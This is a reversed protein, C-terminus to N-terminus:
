SQVKIKRGVILERLKKLDSQQGILILSDGEEMVVEPLPSIISTGDKRNLSLITIDTGELPLVKLKRGVLNPSSIKFDEIALNQQKANVIANLFDVVGPRLAMAAMHYGGIKYPTAVRDAGARYLKPIAEEYSARAIILLNPNLSRATLTIFVNDADDDVVTLLGRAQDIGCKKLVAESDADGHLYLWGKNEAYKLREYNRDTIIFPVGEAEFEEAIQRGVRGCGCIIFHNKLSQMRKRMHRRKLSGKLEGEIIYESFWRFAYVIVGIGLIVLIITLFKGASSLEVRGHGVTALTVIVMYLADLFSWGEVFMYGLAFIMIVIIVFFPIRYLHRLSDSHDSSSQAM